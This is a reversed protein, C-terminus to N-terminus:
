GLSLTSLLGGVLPVIGLCLFAPLLCLGLPVAAKVGVRRARDEVEARANRSLEEALRAVTAVVPSGTAQARALARGLPALGPEDALGEWVGVPDAGLRLRAAAGALRTSAPGPLADAVAAVADAPAAGAALAAGLLRVLHPLDRRLLERDRRVEAPEARGIGAWCAAGAFPAAVLGAVGGVFTAAGVGALLSLPLRYRIMWGGAPTEAPPVPPSPPRVRYPLGLAVALGALLAALATGTM